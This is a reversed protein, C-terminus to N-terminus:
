ITLLLKLLLIHLVRIIAVKKEINFAIAVESNLEQERWDENKIARRLLFVKKDLSDDAFSPSTLLLQLFIM